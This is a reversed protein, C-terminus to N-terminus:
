GIDAHVGLIGSDSGLAAPQGIPLPLYLPNGAPTIYKPVLLKAAGAGEVGGHFFAINQAAGSARVYRSEHAPDGYRGVFVGHYARGTAPLAQECGAMAYSSFGLVAAHADAACTLTSESIATAPGTTVTGIQYSAPLFAGAGNALDTAALVTLTYAGAALTPNAGSASAGCVDSDQETLHASVDGIEVTAGYPYMVFAFPPTMPAGALTEVFGVAAAREASYGYYLPDTVATTAAHWAVGAWITESSTAPVTFAVRLWHGPPATVLQTGGGIFDPVTCPGSAGTVPPAAALILTPVLALVLITARM